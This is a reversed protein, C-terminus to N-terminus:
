LTINENGHGAAKSHPIAESKSPRMQEKLLLVGAFHSFTCLQHSIAKCNDISLHDDVSRSHLTHVHDRLDISYQYQYLIIGETDKLRLKMMLPM